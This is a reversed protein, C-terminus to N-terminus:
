AAQKEEGQELIQRIEPKKRMEDMYAFFQRTEEVDLDTNKIYASRNIADDFEVICLQLPKEEPVLRYMIETILKGQREPHLPDTPVHTREMEHHLKVYTPDKMRRLVEMENPNRPM